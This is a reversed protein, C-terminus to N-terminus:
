RGNSGITVSEAATFRFVVGAVECNAPAGDILLKLPAYLMPKEWANVVPVFRPTLRKIFRLEVLLKKLVM